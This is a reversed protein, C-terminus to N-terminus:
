SAAQASKCAGLLQGVSLNDPLLAQALFNQKRFPQQYISELLTICASLMPCDVRFVQALRELFVLGFPVDELVYRHDLRDPGLPGAGRAEIAQAMQNLPGLPVHYSRGYHQALTPLTFGLREALALRERDLSEAMAAVVGTFNGFLPWAEGRDMRTLNPIVEAAHAIPNINALTSALLSDAAVFRDGFFAQCDALASPSSLSAPLWAMDIRNRLANVHLRGDPLFHATTLTTGWGATTLAAAGNRLWLPLLSLAGSVIITQGERWKAQMPQLVEEYLSGPLCVFIHSYDALAELRSIRTVVVPGNVAGVCDFQARGPEAHAQLRRGTPSWIAAANGRTSLFAATACGIAGGGLIAIRPQM